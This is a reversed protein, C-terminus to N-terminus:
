AWVYKEEWLINHKRFLTRFEDQFNTKQHHEDQNAIYETVKGVNSHSVSFCGYGSQWSFDSFQTGQQKVWLSSVRKLEKVWAAIAIKRNIMALQHVHDEVGGTLIPNCELSKSIAGM